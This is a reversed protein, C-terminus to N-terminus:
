DINAGTSESHLSAYGRGPKGKEVRFKLIQKSSPSDFFKLSEKIMKILNEFDVVGVPDLYVCRCESLGM